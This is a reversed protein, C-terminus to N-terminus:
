DDEGETFLRKQTGKEKLPVAMGETICILLGHARKEKVVGEEKYGYRNILL